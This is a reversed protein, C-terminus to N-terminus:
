LIVIIIRTKQQLCHFSNKTVGFAIGEAWIERMKDLEESVQWKRRGSM